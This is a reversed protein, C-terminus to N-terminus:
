LQAVLELDDRIKDIWGPCVFGKKIEDGAPCAVAGGAFRSVEEDQALIANSDLFHRRVRQWLLEDDMKGKNRWLEYAAVAVGTRDKGANCHVLVAGEAPKHQKMIQMFEAAAALGSNSGREYAHKSKIPVSIVNVKYGTHRAWYDFYGEEGYFYETEQLVVVTRINHARIFEFAQGDAFAAPRKKNDGPDRRNRPFGSSRYLVGPEVARFNYLLLEGRKNRLAVVKERNTAALDLPPGPSLEPWALAVGAAIVVAVIALAGRPIRIYRM